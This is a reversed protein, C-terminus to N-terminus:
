AHVTEIWIMELLSAFLNMDSADVHHTQVKQWLNAVIELVQEQNTTDRSRTCWQKLLDIMDELRENIIEKNEPIWTYVIGTSWLVM